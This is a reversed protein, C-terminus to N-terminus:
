RNGAKHYHALAAIQSINRPQRDVIPRTRDEDEVDYVTFTGDLHAVVDYPAEVGNHEMVWGGHKRRHIKM